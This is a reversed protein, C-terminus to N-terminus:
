QEAVLRKFFAQGNLVFILEWGEQGHKNLTEIDDEGIYDGVHVLLYEWKVM